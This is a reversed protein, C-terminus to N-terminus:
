WGLARGGKRPDSAPDLTGDDNRRIIQVVGVREREVVDHGLVGLAERMAMPFAPEVQVVDPSWQHHVRSASVAEAAPANFLLAHLLVQLTGNIIRPGGSAGAVLVVEGDRLVITPSMSSLPRKGPEPLNRASQVLGFANAADPDTTFDDMENNLCFGFGPVVVRSGFRLNITETCAVAMGDADVVSLHSTGGDEPLAVGRGYTSADGTVRDDIRVALMDIYSPAILRDVPVDVFDDDALYTARDAFAHKMSEILLHLVDPQFMRIPIVDAKEIHYEIMGLMQLMTVGGSSPPPFTVVDYDLFDGVLAEEVRVSYGALDDMTITGGHARMDDVIARAIEGQYFARAGDRAILELARAQAHNRLLGDEDIEVDLVRDMWPAWIRAEIAEDRWARVADFAARHDADLRVGNRAYEIAPALVTRRDLTGHHELAYLLGAVTGPVGSAHHGWRSADEPGGHDVMTMFHTPAVAAPSTERYNLAIFREDGPMAAPDHILMFGGGGLGCSYPRVVSLAFSAAVAADVANGGRELMRLGALSALEHDCAVAGREYPPTADVGAWRSTTCATACALVVGVSM